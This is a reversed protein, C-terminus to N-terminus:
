ENLVGTKAEIRGEEARLLGIMHWSLPSAGRQSVSAIADRLLDLRDMRGRFQAGAIDASDREAQRAAVRAFAAAVDAATREGASLGAMAALTACATGFATGALAQELDISDGGRGCAHCKWRHEVALSLAQSRDSTLCLPCPGRTGAFAVGHAQLVDRPSVAERIKEPDFRAATM